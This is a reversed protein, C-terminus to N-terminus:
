QLLKQSLLPHQLLHHCRQLRQSVQVRHQVLNLGRKKVSQRRRKSRRFEGKMHGPGSTTILTPLVSRTTTIPGHTRPTDELTFSTVIEAVFSPNMYTMTDLLQEDIVTSMVVSPGRPNTGISAVGVTQKNTYKVLFQLLVQRRYNRKETRDM